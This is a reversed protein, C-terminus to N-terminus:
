VVSLSLKHSGQLILILIQFHFHAKLHFWSFSLLLARCYQPWSLLLQLWYFIFTQLFSPWCSSSIYIQSLILPFQPFYFHFYRFPRCSDSIYKQSLILPPDLIWCIASPPSGCFSGSPIASRWFWLVNEWLEVSFLYWGIKVLYTALISIQFQSVYKKCDIQHQYLECSM